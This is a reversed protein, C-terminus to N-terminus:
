YSEQLENPYIQYNNALNHQICSFKNSECLVIIKKKRKKFVSNPKYQLYFLILPDHRKTNIHKSKKKGGGRTKEESVNPLAPAISLYILSLKDSSFNM